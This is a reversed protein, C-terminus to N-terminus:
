GLRRPSLDAATLGAELLHDPLTRDYVLGATAAAMAPSTKIGYGGQGALWFFGDREPDMGAVPVGDAVFSRLGAWTREPHHIRLVTANQIRDIGLAVDIEEPRADGPEDPIEDEPSGLIM